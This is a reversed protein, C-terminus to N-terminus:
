ALGILVVLMSFPSACSGYMLIQLLHLDCFVLSVQHFQLEQAKLAVSHAILSAEM